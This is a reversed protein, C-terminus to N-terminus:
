GSAEKTKHFHHELCQLLFRLNTNENNGELIIDDEQRLKFHKIGLSGYEVELSLGVYVITRHKIDNFTM